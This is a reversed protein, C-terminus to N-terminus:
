AKRSSTTINKKVNQVRISGALKKTHQKTLILITYQNRKTVCVQETVRKASM